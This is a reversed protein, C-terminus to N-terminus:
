GARLQNIFKLGWRYIKTGLPERNKALCVSATAGHQLRPVDPQDLKVAIEFYSQRAQMTDTAVAITGGGLQTLAAQEVTPSGTEAIRIITGTLTKSRVGAVKASVTDGVQPHADAIDEETALCVLAWNGSGVTAMPEGMQLFRGVQSEDIATVFVGSASARITLQDHKRTAEAMAERAHNLEQLTRMAAERDRVQELRYRTELEDLEVQARLVDNSVQPNELSLLLSEPGVHEGSASGVAHLFGSVPVHVVSEDERAVVADAVVPQALPVTAVGALTGVILLVALAVARRRVHAIEESLWLYRVLGMVAGVISSGAYFVALLVGVVYFKMAIMVSIGFVLGIKWFASAVGYCLLAIRLGLPYQSRPPRIGFFLRKCLAALIETSRQRLNPVEIMDSLVYYGDYRMLPNMNFAITVVSALLVIQHATSNVLSPGTAAWILVAFAAIGTEVYIGALSVVIRHLKKSFGWAASADVYACPTMCVLFAGMEPVRGGLLKCAYAHGFEHCIKLAILIFFMSIINQTALVSALPTQFDPWRELLVAGAVTVLVLWAIFALRTFLPAFWHATRDLFQDPNFLPIRWFVYGLLRRDLPIQQRRKYRSYLADTDAIPLNLFGFQQLQVIFRYFKEEQEATLHGLKTLRDFVDSLPKSEDLEVLIRYDEVSFQHSQFTVPNRVIYCPRTRVLHRSVELNSRLGVQATRLQPALEMTTTV